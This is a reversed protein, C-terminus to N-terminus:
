NLTLQSDILAYGFSPNSYLGYVQGMNISQLLYILTPVTEISKM